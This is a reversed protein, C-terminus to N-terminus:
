AVVTEKALYAELRDLTQEQGQIAGFTNVARSYDENTEFVGRWKMETTNGRDILEVITRFKPTPGHTFVILHPKEVADYKIENRYDTGDPGHMTFNWEGGQAVNMDHITNTFGNPGWWHKIHDPETFVRWVLERPAKLMRTAGITRKEPDGQEVFKKLLSGVLETWGGEFNKADFQPLKPFTDLGTHTVTVKTGNGEPALDFTVLSNGDYGDYRWSYQIRKQLIVETVRCLHLWSKTENGARFHFEFGVEPKFGSMMPFYWIRMHDINTLADWVLSVPANLTREITVTGKEIAMNSKRNYHRLIIKSAIWASKGSM